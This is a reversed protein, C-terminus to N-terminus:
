TINGRFGFCPLFPPQTYLDTTKTRITIIPSSTSRFSAQPKLQQKKKKKIHSGTLVNICLLVSGACACVYARMEQQGQQLVSTHTGNLPNHGLKVTYHQAQESCLLCVACQVTLLLPPPQSFFLPFSLFRLPSLACTLDCSGVLFLSFFPLFFSLFYFVSPFLCHVCNPLVSLSAQMPPLYLHITPFIFDCHHVYTFPFM